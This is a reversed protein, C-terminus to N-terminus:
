AATGDEIEPLDTRPAIIEVGNDANARKLDSGLPLFRRYEPRYEELDAREVDYFWAALTLEGNQERDKVVAYTRLHELQMIAAERAADDVTECDKVRDAVHQCSKAWSALAPLGDPLKGTKIATMAGCKAHACVVINRVGLVHIAYEVAAGEDPSHDAGLPPLLAGINRVVFLEGPQTGTLLSPVVRSDSCTLMLTHPHQGAALETLLGSLPERIESRFREVGALLRRRALGTGAKREFIRDVDANRSAFRTELFARDGSALIREKIEATAGLIAVRAGRQEGRMVLHVLREAASVDAGTLHSLDLVTDHPDIAELEAALRDLKSIALFTLAGSMTVHHPGDDDALHVRVRATGLRLLALVLAVVCGAQVGAFLDFVVIAAVTVLFVLAEVRSIGWLSKVYGFGLMRAATALLVGALAAIPVRELLPVATLLAALLVLAQLLSVRRTKGGAAQALSSRAQVTTVPIGSFFAVAINALGQGFLEQDVNTSETGKARDLANIVLVVQLSAIVYVVLADGLLAPMAASTPFAFTEPMALTLTGLTPIDTRLVYVVATGLLVALFSSPVRPLITPLYFTVFFCMAAILVAMPKADQVYTGVHVLVDVVHSEDPAGLGLARPLQGVLIIIGIGANFGHIVGVPVLRLLSGFGLAGTVLQLAGAVFGVFALAPLGHVDVIQGVLVALAIAPGTIAVQSAGAFATVLGAVAASVLGVVPPADSALAIALALPLSLGAVTVGAVLDKGLHEPSLMARWEPVLRAVSARRGGRRPMPPISLGPRPVISSSMSGRSVLVFDNVRRPNAARM